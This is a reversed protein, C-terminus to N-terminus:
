GQPTLAVTQGASELAEVVTVATVGNESMTFTTHYGVIRADQPIQAVARNWAAERALEEITEEEREVQTLRLERRNETGVTFPLFFGNWDYLLERDWEYEEFQSQESTQFIGLDIFLAEETKGSKAWEDAYRSVYAMGTYWRSISIEARAHVLRPEGEVYQPVISGSVLVQGPTVSDGAKVMPQGDYVRIERIIGQKEAVIDAPQSDDLMEPAGGTEVIEILLRTADLTVAARSVGPVRSVIERELQSLEIAGLGMGEQIGADEVASRVDAPDVASCGKVYVGSLRTSMGWLVLLALAFGLCFMPRGFLARLPFVAGGKEEISIKFRRCGPLKKLQKFQDPRIELTCCSEGASRIHRSQIGSKAAADLFASIGQGEIRIRVYGRLYYWLHAWM